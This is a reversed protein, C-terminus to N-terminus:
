GLGFEFCGRFDDGCFNYVVWLMVRILCRELQFFFFGDARYLLWWGGMMVGTMVGDIRNSEIRNSEWVGGLSVCVLGVSEFMTHTDTVSHTHAATRIMDMVKRETNINTTKKM